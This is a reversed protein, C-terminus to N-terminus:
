PFGLHESGVNVRVAVQRVLGKVFVSLGRNLSHLIGAHDRADRDAAFVAVDLGQARNEVRVRPKEEAGPGDMRFVRFQSLGVDIFDSLARIFGAHHRDAFRPKVEVPALLGKVPLPVSESAVDRSCSLGPFGEDNM